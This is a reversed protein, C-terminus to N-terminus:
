VKEEVLEDTKAAMEELTKTALDVPLWSTVLRIFPPCIDVSVVLAAQNRFPSRLFSVAFIILVVHLFHVQRCRATDNRLGHAHACFCLYTPKSNAVFGILVRRALYLVLM